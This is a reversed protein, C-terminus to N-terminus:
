RLWIEKMVEEFSYSHMMDMAPNPMLMHLDQLVISSQLFIYQSSSLRSIPLGPTNVAKCQLANAM